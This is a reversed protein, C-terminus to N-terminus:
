RGETLIVREFVRWSADSDSADVRARWDALYTNLPEVTSRGNGGASPATESITVVLLDRGFPPGVEWPQRGDSGDGLRLTENAALKGEDGGSPHLHLVDGTHVVYDVAVHRDEDAAAIDVVLRDGERLSVEAGPAVDALAVGTEISRDPLSTLVSRLDCLSPSLEAVDLAIGHDALGARLDALGDVVGASAYALMRSDGARSAPSGCGLSRLDQELKALEIRPDTEGLLSSLDVPGSMPVFAEVWTEAAEVEAEDLRKALADGIADGLLAEAQDPPAEEALRLWRYADALNDERDPGGAQLLGFRYQATADGRLAAQELLAAAHDLDLPVADGTEYRTALRLLAAADGSAAASRDAEQDGEAARGQGAIWCPALTVMLVFALLRCAPGLRTGVM